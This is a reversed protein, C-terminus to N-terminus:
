EAGCQKRTYGLVTKDNLGVSSVKKLGQAGSCYGEYM